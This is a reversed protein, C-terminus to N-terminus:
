GRDIRGHAFAVSFLARAVVGVVRLGGLVEHRLPVGDDMATGEGFGGPVRHTARTGDLRGAGDSGGGFRIGVVGVSGRDFDNGFFLPVLPHVLDGLDSSDQRLM